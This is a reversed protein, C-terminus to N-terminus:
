ASLNLAKRRDKLSGSSETVFEWLGFNEQRVRELLRGVNAHCPQRMGHYAVLSGIPKFYISFRSLLRLLSPEMVAFWDTIGHEFSMLLTAKMLGLAISSKLNRRDVSCDGQRDIKPSVFEDAMQRIRKSIAFRSVEAANSTILRDALLPHSCIQQIPFSKEPTEQDPFVLRVTGTVAGSGRDILLSHISRSDFEDRECQQPHEEPTEYAHECCYVQYRLRYAQELLAPTDAPVVKFRHHYADSLRTDRLPVFQEKEVAQCCTM